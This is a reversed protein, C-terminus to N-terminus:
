PLPIQYLVGGEGSTLWLSDQSAAMAYWDGSGLAIESVVENTAPDIEVIGTASAAWLSDGAVTIAVNIGPGDITALVQGDPDLRIVEAAGHEIVWLSGFGVAVSHPRIGAEITDTIQGNEPDVRLVVDSGDIVVWIAEEWSEVWKPEGSPIEIESLIANSELDISVLTGSGESAVWLVGDRVARQGLMPPKYVAREEGSVLDAAVLQEDRVYWLTDGSVGPWFGPITQLIEGTAGDLQSLQNEGEVWVTDGASVIGYAFPKFDVVQAVGTPLTPTPVATPSSPPVSASPASSEAASSSGASCGALLVLAAALTFRALVM